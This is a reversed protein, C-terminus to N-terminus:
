GITKLAAYLERKADHADEIPERMVQFNAVVKKTKPDIVQIVGKRDVIELGRRRALWRIEHERYNKSRRWLRSFTRNTLRYDAM